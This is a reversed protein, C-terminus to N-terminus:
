PSVSTAWAASNSAGTARQALLRQRALAVPNTENCASLAALEIDLREFIPAYAAGTLMLKAALLHARELRARLAPRNACAPM